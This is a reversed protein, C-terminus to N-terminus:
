FMSVGNGDACAAQGTLIRWCIDGEMLPKRLKRGLKGHTWPYVNDPVSSTDVKIHKLDALVEKKTMQVDDLVDCSRIGGNQLKGSKRLTTKQGDLDKSVRKEGLWRKSKICM